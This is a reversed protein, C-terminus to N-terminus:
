DGFLPGLLVKLQKELGFYYYDHGSKKEVNPTMATYTAKCLTKYSKPLKGILNRHKHLAALVADIQVTTMNRAMAAARLDFWLTGPSDDTPSVMFDEDDTDSGGIAEHSTDSEQMEKSSTDFVPSEVPENDLDDSRTSKSEDQAVALNEYENSSSKNRETESNHTSGSDCDEGYTEFCAALKASEIIERKEREKKRFKTVKNAIYEKRKRKKNEEEGRLFNQIMVLIM